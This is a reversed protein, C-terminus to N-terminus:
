ERHGRRMCRIAKLEAIIVNFFVKTENVKM